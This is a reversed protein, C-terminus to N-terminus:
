CSDPDPDLDPTQDPDDNDSDKEPEEPVDEIHACPATAHPQTSQSPNGYWHRFPPNNVPPSNQSCRAQVMPTARSSCTQTHTTATM